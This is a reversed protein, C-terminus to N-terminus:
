VNSFQQRFIPLPVNARNVIEAFFQRYDDISQLLSQQEVQQLSLYGLITKLSDFPHLLANNIIATIYQPRQFATKELYDALQKQSWQFYHIALVAIANSLEYLLSLYHSILFPFKQEEFIHRVFYEQIFYSWGDHILLDPFYDIAANQQKRAFSLFMHKGPITLRLIALELSYLSHLPYDTAQDLEVLNIDLLVQAQDPTDAVPSPIYELVNMHLHYPPAMNIRVPDNPLRFLNNELTLNKIRYQVNRLYGLLDDTESVSYTANLLSQAVWIRQKEDSPSLVSNEVIYNRAYDALKSKISTLLSNIQEFLNEPNISYINKIIKEFLQSNVTASKPQFVSHLFKVFEKLAINTNNILNTLSPTPLIEVVWTAVAEFFEPLQHIFEIAGSYYEVPIQGGVLNRKAAQLYYPTDALLAIMASQRKVLDGAQRHMLYFIIKYLELMWILPNSSLFKYDRFILLEKQMLIYLNTMGIWEEGELDELILSIEFLTNEIKLIWKQIDAQNRPPMQEILKSDQLATVPHFHQWNTLFDHFNLLM